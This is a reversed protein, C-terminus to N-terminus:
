SACCARPALRIAARPLTPISRCRESLVGGLATALRNADERIDLRVAHLGFTELRVRADRLQGEALAGPMAQGVLDLVEKVEDATVRAQHPAEELLRATMDDGSAVELDAAALALALRYPESAYRGELYAV